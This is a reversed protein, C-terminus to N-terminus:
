KTVTSDRSFFFFGMQRGTFVLNFIGNQVGYNRFWLSKVKVTVHGHGWRYPSRQMYVAIHRPDRSASWKELHQKGTQRGGAPLAPVGHKRFRVSFFLASKGRAQDGGDREHAHPPPVCAHTQTRANMRTSQICTATFFFFSVLVLPDNMGVYM